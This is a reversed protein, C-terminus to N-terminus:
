CIGLDSGFSADIQNVYEHEKEENTAFKGNKTIVPIQDKCVYM